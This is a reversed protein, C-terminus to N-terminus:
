VARLAPRREDFRQKRWKYVSTFVKNLEQLPLRPSNQKNWSWLRTRARMTSPAEDLMKHSWFVAAWHRGVCEPREIDSGWPEGEAVGEAIRRLVGKPRRRAGEAPARDSALTECDHDPTHQTDYSPTLTLHKILDTSADTGRPHPMDLPAYQFQPESLYWLYYCPKDLFEDGTAGVTRRGTDEHIGGIARILQGPRFCADDIARRLELDDGCLRDFLASLANIAARSSRYIPCGLLSHPIRVHVSANGSYSVVVDELDVGTDKLLHLLRRALRDSVRKCKEGGDNRGDIEAIVWPVTVACKSRDHRQVEDKRWRGITLYRPSAAERDGVRAHKREYRRGHATYRNGYLSSCTVAHTFRRHLKQSRAVHQAAQQWVDIYESSGSPALSLSDADNEAPPTCLVFPRPEAYCNAGARKLNESPRWRRGFRDADRKRVNPVTPGINFTESGRQVAKQLRRYLRHFDEHALPNGQPVARRYIRTWIDETFSQISKFFEGRRRNVREGSHMEFVRCSANDSKRTLHVARSDFLLDLRPTSQRTLIGSRREVYGARLPVSRTFASRYARDPSRDPATRSFDPFPLTGQGRKSPIDSFSKIKEVGTGYTSISHRDETGSNSAHANRM